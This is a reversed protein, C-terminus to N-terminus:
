RQSRGPLGPLPSPRNRARYRNFLVYIDKVFAYTTSCREWCMSQIVVSILLGTVAMRRLQRGVDVFGQWHVCIWQRMSSLNGLDLPWPVGVTGYEGIEYAALFKRPRDPRMWHYSNFLDTCERGAALLLMEKGGPHKDLFGTIDYVKGDVTVWCSEATNHAAVQQWTYKGSKGAPVTAADAEAGSGKVLNGAHWYDLM